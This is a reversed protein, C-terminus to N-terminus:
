RALDTALWRALADLAAQDRVATGLPPMQSSPRRSRMRVLMASLEPSSPHLLVSSGEPAGPVQWRTAHGVLSRAAADGDELLDDAKLSPGFGAIEGSGDHCSGCNASLYGLAARTRPSGTRIRPPNTVFEPRSPSLLGEDVLTQLTVMGPALPEAHLANPDRDTSLQLANFGLPATRAAGHCTMCDSVSPIDHQRGTAVEAAGRLGEDPARLAETGAENWVYSAAIWKAAAAKWLMRTEVKRGNIRFEKWFRTGVPLNWDRLNAVDITSGAPLFVWRSKAAGDSWLPYQPSFPRNRPDVTGPQGALYLGTDMLREPAQLDAAATLPSSIRYAAAVVLAACAAAMVRRGNM